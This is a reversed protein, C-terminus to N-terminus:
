WAKSLRTCVTRKCRFIDSRLCVFNCITIIRKFSYPRLYVFNKSICRFNGSKIYILTCVTIIYICKDSM